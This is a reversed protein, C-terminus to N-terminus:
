EQEEYNEPPQQLGEETAEETSATKKSLGVLNQKMLDVAKLEQVLREQKIKAQEFIGQAKQMAEKTSVLENQLRQLEEDIQGLFIDNGM